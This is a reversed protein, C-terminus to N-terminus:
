GMFVEYKPLIVNKQPAIRANLNNMVKINLNKTQEKSTTQM